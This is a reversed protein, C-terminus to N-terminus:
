PGVRPSRLLWIAVAVSNILVGAANLVVAQPTTSTILLGLCLALCIFSVVLWVFQQRHMPM